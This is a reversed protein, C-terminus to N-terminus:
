QRDYLILQCVSATARLRQQPQPQPQPQPPQPPQQQQQQQQQQICINKLKCVAIQISAFASFVKMPPKVPPPPKLGFVGAISAFAAIMLAVPESYLKKELMWPSGPWPRKRSIEPVSFVIMPWSLQGMPLVSSSSRAMQVFLPVSCAPLTTAPWILALKGALVVPASSALMISTLSCSTKTGESKRLSTRLRDQCIM